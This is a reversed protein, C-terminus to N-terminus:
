LLKKLIWVDVAMNSPVNNGHCVAVGDWLCTMTNVTELYALNSNLLLM